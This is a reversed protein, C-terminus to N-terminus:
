MMSDKFIFDRRGFRTAKRKTGKTGCFGRLTQLSIANHLLNGIGLAVADITRLREESNKFFRRV